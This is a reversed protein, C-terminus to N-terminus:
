FLFDLGGGLVLILTENDSKEGQLMLLIRCLGQWCGVTVAGEIYNKSMLTTIVGGLDHELHYFPSGSSHVSSREDDFCHAQFICAASTKMKEIRSFLVNDGKLHLYKQKIHVYYM